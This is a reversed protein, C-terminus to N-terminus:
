FVIRCITVTLLLSCLRSIPMGCYGDKRMGLVTRTGRFIIVKKWKGLGQM